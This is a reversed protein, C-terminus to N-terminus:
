AAQLQAVRALVTKRARGAEEYARVAELEDRSLGALRQVVQSASLTDYGPIALTSVDPRPGASAPAPAPPTEVEARTPAAVGEPPPPPPTPRIRNLLKPAEQHIAYQGVTRASAVQQRGKKALQPLFERISTVLGLPAFVFVDLLQDVPDRPESETM